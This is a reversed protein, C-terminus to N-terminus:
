PYSFLSLNVFGIISRSRSGEASFQFVNKGYHYRCVADGGRDKTNALHHWHAKGDLAHSRHGRSDAGFRMEIPETKEAPSVTKVSSESVTAEEVTRCVQLTITGYNLYVAM